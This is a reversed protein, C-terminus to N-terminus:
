NGLVEEEASMLDMVLFKDVGAMGDEVAPEGSGEPLFEVEERLAEVGVEGIECIRGLEEEVGGGFDHLGVRVQEKGEELLGSLIGM